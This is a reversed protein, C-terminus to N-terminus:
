SQLSGTVVFVDIKVVLVPVIAFLDTLIIIIVCVTIDVIVICVVAPFEESVLTMILSTKGM